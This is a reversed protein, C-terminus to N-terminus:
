RCNRFTRFFQAGSNTGDLSGSAGGAITAVIWNTGSPTIKRIANNLEDAVYINGAGDAAVGTPDSFQASSGVGDNSGQSGGAITSFTFTQGYAVPVTVATALLGGILFLMKIKQM